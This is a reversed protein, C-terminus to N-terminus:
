RGRSKGREPTPSEPGDHGDALEGPSPVAQEDLMSVTEDPTMEPKVEAILARSNKAVMLYMDVSYHTQKAMRKLKRSDLSFLTDELAQLLKPAAHMLRLRGDTERANTFEQGTIRYYIEEAAERSNFDGIAEAEGKIHGYLTWFEAESDDCTETYKGSPDPIGADDLRLCGSIEYNDYVPKSKM